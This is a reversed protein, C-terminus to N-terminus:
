LDGFLPFEKPPVPPLVAPSSMYRIQEKSKRYIGDFQSILEATWKPATGLSRGPLGKIPMQNVRWLLAVGEKWVKFADSKKARLPHSEFHPVVINALDATKKVWFTWSPNGNRTSGSPLRYTLGGCAWFSQIQKLTPLDDARLALSFTATPVSQKGGHRQYYGLHFYGEGDTFGSLWDGFRQRDIELPFTPIPQTPYKRAM